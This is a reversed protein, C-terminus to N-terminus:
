ETAGLRAQLWSMLAPELDPNAAFMPVGHESGGYMKLESAPHASASVVDRIARAANADGEAAAGFVAVAPTSAIHERGTESPTGSLLVLARIESRRAALDTSQTVGCSAGGAAVRSPDVDDRSRLYAFMADVDGPWKEAMVPRLEAFSSFREGGSDGFGRFDVALVNFGAKVLHNALGDWATRDMNCQHLLLIGPATRGSSYYTGKLTVGDPAAIDVDHKQAEARGATAFVLAAATLSVVFTKM